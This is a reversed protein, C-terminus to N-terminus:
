ALSAAQNVYIYLNCYEYTAALNGQVHTPGYALLDFYKGTQGVNAYDQM